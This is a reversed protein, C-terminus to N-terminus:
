FTFRAGVSVSRGLGFLREGIPVDVGAVRNIGDLHDRYRRDLLNAVGASLEWGPRLQWRATANVVAYGPTPPEDNFSSVKEQAAYAITEIRTSWGEGEYTLGVRGNFPALRYLNDAVDTRRGRVYTLVGDVVLRETLYAGWGLDLGYIEADTNAFELAPSATMMTAVMNAVPNTSPVGQIYDAIDKYFIQPAFWARDGRWNSCLNIERSTEADLAPNGIYSRGDALGGTAELPLWLYLEQYSPARTKQAVELYISRMDGLVRGIKAVVDVDDFTRERPGANFATALLAANAAMMQMMPNMAPISAGVPGSGTRVRNVRLGAELDVPGRSGNWQAFLGVIDREAANFNEIRFPAVNPNTITATHEATEGDLGFRWEGGDLKSRAGIRWQYGDATARNARFSMPSAPATRLSFNDMVHDVDSHSLAAELTSRQGLRTEFRAGYLDTAIFRIDMPLSPTGTDNTDLRGTYVLVHTDDRQYAYSLDYRDRELRTPVLTGGPYDFDNARDHEGLLAVKHTENSGVLQVATSNLGGNSSYRTQAKGDLGFDTGDRHRGRDFDVAIHGGLSEIASSVSAIGRELSMQDLLLPSAYSLPADMANPGGTTTRLGDISVAVRDGYLGRYQAIGALMGNANLNAGPLQRLLEATDVADETSPAVTDVVPYVRQGLAVVQEAARGPASRSGAPADVAPQADAAVAALAAAAILSVHIASRRARWGRFNSPQSRM